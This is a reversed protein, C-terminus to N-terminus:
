FKVRLLVWFKVGLFTLNFLFECIVIELFLHQSRQSWFAQQSTTIIKGVLAQNPLFADGGSFELGVLLYNQVSIAHLDAKEEEDDDDRNNEDDDDPWSRFSTSHSRHCNKSRSRCTKMQILVLSHHPHPHQHQRPHSQRNQPVVYPKFRTHLKFTIIVDIM